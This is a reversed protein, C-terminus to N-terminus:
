GLGGPAGPLRAAGPRGLARGRGGGGAAARRGGGGPVAALRHLVGGAGPGGGTEGALGVLPGLRAILWARDEATVAEVATSLKARAAAEDDSELIGAEAKVIEGLAWFTVGDGYPLCHGQRWSILEAADDVVGFLERVLRSKGVGPEGTITVLQVAQERVTRGLASRLAALEDARGVFSTAPAPM